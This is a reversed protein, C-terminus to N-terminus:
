PSSIRPLAARTSRGLERALSHLRVSADVAAPNEALVLVLCELVLASVLARHGASLEAPGGGVAFLVRRAERSLAARLTSDRQEATTLVRALSAEFATLVATPFPAAPEPSPGRGAASVHGASPRGTPPRGAATRGRQATARALGENLAETFWRGAAAADVVGLSDEAEIDTHM